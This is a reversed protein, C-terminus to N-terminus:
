AANLDVIECADATCALERGGSTTDEKEFEQLKSWNVTRPMQVIMAEYEDETCDQYPAQKYTHNDFPLFSIGSVEDFHKYVWAAVELWEHEKVNITVSPKHECWHRQYTLWLELQEVASLITRTVAGRPSAMPFSFVTTSEPKM